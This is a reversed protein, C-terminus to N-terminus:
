LMICISDRFVILLSHFVTQNSSHSATPFLGALFGPEFASTLQGERCFWLVWQLPDLLKNKRLFEKLQTELQRAFNKCWVKEETSCLLLLQLCLKDFVIKVLIFLTVIEILLM